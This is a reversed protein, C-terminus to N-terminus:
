CTLLQTYGSLGSLNVTFPGWVLARTNAIEAGLAHTSATTTYVKSSAGATMQESGVKTGDVFFDITSSGRCTQGDIKFVVAVNQPETSDSGCAVACVLVIGALLKRM